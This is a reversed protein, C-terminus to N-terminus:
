IKPAVMARMSSLVALLAVGVDAFVAAWMTAAGATALVLVAAKVVLALAINQIVVSRTKKAIAFAVPLKGPEDTMLVVDAVEIAADSGLAGMAIGVGARALVPADNIGDGVYATNGEREMEELCAVKGDPLLEYYVEDLGLRRGMEMAIAKRDGTLMATKQIGGEKLKAIADAADEKLEDGLAIYGAYHGNVAVHVFTAAEDKMELPLVGKERLLEENGALVKAGRVVGAMGRGPVEHAETCWGSLDMERCPALIAKAIPHNSSAELAAVMQVFSVDDLGELPHVATIAFQGKTLTGTKDFVVTDVDNMAELYNSGKILIGQRSAGGIGAFYSLPVSLVLACPCSVVLFMLARYLWTTFDQGAILPPLVAVLVAGALVVPTYIRAFRTVFNEAKSKRSSAEEVMQLVRAAASKEFPKTVRIKLSSDQVIVGSLVEDGVRVSRPVSEGTLASTDTYSEGEVVVGDLPVREGPKVLIIAGVEVEKAPTNHTHNDHVVAATDPRIDMLAKISGRSRSVAWDEFFEGVQYFLMVGVAEAYEGIIFAGLTAVTMLVNEDLSFDRFGRKVIHAFVPLGLILYAAIYLVLSWTSLNEPLMLAAIFVAIGVGMRVLKPTNVQFSKKKVNEEKRPQLIVEPEVAQCLKGAEQHFANQDAGDKLNVRLIQTAFDLRAEDVEPMESLRKEMKAACNACGLHEVTYELRM